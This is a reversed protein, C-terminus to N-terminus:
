KKEKKMVALPMGETFSSMTVLMWGEAAAENMRKELDAALMGNKGVLVKYEWATSSGSSTAAAAALVICAGALAGLLLSKLDFRGSGNKM